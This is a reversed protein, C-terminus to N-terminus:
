ALKIVYNTSLERPCAGASSPILPGRCRCVLTLCTSRARLRQGLLDSRTRRLPTRAGNPPGNRTWLLRGCWLAFQLCLVASLPLVSCVAYRLGKDFTELHPARVGFKNTVFKVAQFFVHFLFGFHCASKASRRMASRGILKKLPLAASCCLVITLASFSANEYTLRNCLDVLRERQIKVAKRM